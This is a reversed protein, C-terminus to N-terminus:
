PQGPVNRSNWGLQEGPWHGKRRRRGGCAGLSLPGARHSCRLIVHGSHLACFYGSSVTEKKRELFFPSARAQLLGWAAKCRLSALCNSTGAPGAQPWLGPSVGRSWLAEPESVGGLSDLLPKALTVKRIGSAPTKGAGGLVISLLCFCCWGGTYGSRLALLGTLTIMIIVTCTVTLVLHSSSNKM